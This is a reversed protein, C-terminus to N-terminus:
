TREPTFSPNTVPRHPRPALAARALARWGAADTHAHVATVGSRRLIQRVNRARVSGAAIVTIRGDARTVLDALVPIGRLATRAGGSTLVADVGLRILADLARGHDRAQDFARHFTVALPRAAAVLEGLAGDDVEGAPTLVGIVVGNVGLRKLRSITTLMLARERRGHVYDGPRPRVMVHIPSDLAERLRQVADPRPTLGGAAIRSCLEMRHAGAASARLAERVSTVCAELLVGHRRQRLATKVFFKVAAIEKSKVILGSTAPARQAQTPLEFGLFLNAL